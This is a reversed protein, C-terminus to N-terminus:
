EKQYNPSPIFKPASKEGKNEYREFGVGSKYTFKTVSEEVCSLDDDIMKESLKTKELHTIL